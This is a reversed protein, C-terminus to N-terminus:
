SARGTSLVVKLAAPRAAHVFAAAGDELSYRAEVLPAVDVAGRELLRLAPAFPGCRSGVISVEDVVLASADLELRGAAYTSKLV